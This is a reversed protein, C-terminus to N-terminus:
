WYTLQSYYVEAKFVAEKFLPRLTDCDRSKVVVYGTDDDYVVRRRDKVVVYEGRM